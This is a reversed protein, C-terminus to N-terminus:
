PRKYACRKSVQACQVYLEHVTPKPVKVHVFAGPGYLTRQLSRLVWRVDRADVSVKPHSDCDSGQCCQNIPLWVISHPM